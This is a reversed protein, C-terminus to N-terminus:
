WGAFGAAFAWLVSSVLGGGILLLMGQKWDIQPDFDGEHIM